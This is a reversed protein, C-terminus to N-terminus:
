LAFWPALGIMLKSVGFRSFHTNDAYLSKGNEFILCGSQPNCFPGSLDVAFTNPIQLTTGLVAAVKDAQDKYFVYPIRLSEPMAGNRFRESAVHDVVDFNPTPLPYIILIKKGAQSLTRATTQLEQAIAVLRLTDDM